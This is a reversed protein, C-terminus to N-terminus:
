NTRVLGIFHFGRRPSSGHKKSLHLFQKFQHNKFYKTRKSTTITVLINNKDLIIEDSVDIFEDQKNINRIRVNDNNLRFIKQIGM